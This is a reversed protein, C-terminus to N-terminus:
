KVRKYFFPEKVLIKKENGNVKKIKERLEYLGKKKIIYKKNSLFVYSNFPSDVNVIPEIRSTSENKLEYWKTSCNNNFALKVKRISGKIFRCDDFAPMCNITTDGNIFVTADKIIDGNLNKILGITISDEHETTIETITVPIDDRNIFSKLILTDKVIEWMGSSFSQQIDTGTSYYFSKNQNLKISTGAFGELTRYQYFAFISDRSYFTKSITNINKKESNMMIIVLFGTFSVFRITKFLTM